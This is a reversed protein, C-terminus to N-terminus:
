CMTRCMWIRLFLVLVIIVPLNLMKEVPCIVDNFGFVAKPLEKVLSKIGEKSFVHTM